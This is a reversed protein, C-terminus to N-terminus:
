GESALLPLQRILERLVQAMSVDRGKAYKRLRELDAASLRLQLTETKAM